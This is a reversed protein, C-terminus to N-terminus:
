RRVGKCAAAIGRPNRRLARAIDAFRLSEQDHLYTVLAQLPARDRNTFIGIPVRRESPVPPEQPKKRANRLTTTITTPSRHLLRAIDAPRMGKEHLHISLAELVGLGTSFIGLPMSDQQEAELNYEKGVGAPPLAALLEATTAGYRRQLWEM